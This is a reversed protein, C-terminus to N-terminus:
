FKVSEIQLSKGSPARGSYQQARRNHASGLNWSNCVMSSLEPESHAPPFPKVAAEEESLSDDPMIAPMTWVKRLISSNSEVIPSWHETNIQDEPVQETSPMVQPAWVEQSPGCLCSKGLLKTLYLLQDTVADLRQQFELRRHRGIGNLLELQEAFGEFDAALLGISRMMCPRDVPSSKAECLDASLLPVHVELSRGSSREM